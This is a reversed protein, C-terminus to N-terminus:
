SNTFFLRNFNKFTMTKPTMFKKQFRLFDVLTMLFGYFGSFDDEWYKDNFIMICYWGRFKEVPPVNAQQSASSNTMDQQQMSYEYLFDQPYLPTNNTMQYKEFGFGQNLTHNVSVHEHYTPHISSQSQDHFTEYPNEGFRPPIPAFGPPVIINKDSMQQQQHQYNKPMGSTAMLIGSYM